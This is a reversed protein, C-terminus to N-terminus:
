NHLLYDETQFDFTEDTMRKMLQAMTCPLEDPQHYGMCMTLNAQSDFDVLLVKKGQRALNTGLNHPTTTKGVGGKPNAIAIIHTNKM